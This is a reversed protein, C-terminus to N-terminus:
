FVSCGTSPIRGCHVPGVGGGTCGSTGHLVWGSPSRWAALTAIGCPEEVGTLTSIGARARTTCALILRKACLLSPHLARDARVPRRDTHDDREGHQGREEPDVDESLLAELRRESRTVVHSHLEGGRGPQRRPQALRGVDGAHRDALD